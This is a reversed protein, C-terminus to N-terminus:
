ARRRRQQTETLQQEREASPRKDLNTLEEQTELVSAKVREFERFTDHRAPYGM